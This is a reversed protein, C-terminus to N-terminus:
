MYMHVYWASLSCFSTRASGECIYSKGFSYGSHRQEEAVLSVGEQLFKQVEDWFTDYKTRQGGNWKLARLDLVVDPDEMDVFLQVQDNIM